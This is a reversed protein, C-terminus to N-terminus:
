LKIKFKYKDLWYALVLGKWLLSGYNGKGDKHKVLLKKLYASDLIKEETISDFTSYAFDFLGDKLWQRYPVGFGKKKGDLIQDPIIGRLAKRLLYKKQGFRVKQSSPLGLMYQTLDNDLFPVRAELSCCMTAKDVKELYKHKLLIDVDAYLMKQVMDLHGYEENFRKYTTFPDHKEICNRYEEDLIAFPSDYPVDETLYLAMKKADNKQNLVYSIRKMRLAWLENPIFRHSVTSVVKWFRQWDLVNYRRYGGFFEDGGDGQLIVKKDKSCQEALLYLPINATDSFPEDYQFVLKSFIDTIDDSRVKLEHHNTGFKKAIMAANELESNGGINFDYDVTYTDLRDMHRSGFAVISSSDIGGSLLVGIPVDSVLQKKVASELLERVKSVATKENQINDSVKPLSWYKKTSAIRGTSLDFELISASDLKNVNKVMTNNSITNGYWLYEALGQQNIELSDLWHYLVKAESAFAFYQDDDYYYLPKVGFRDRILYLKNTSKKLIATAFIGNWEQVVAKNKKVFTELMVETDSTTKTDISYKKKLENYNYIEGNYTCLYDENRSLFPQNSRQDLDIISLRYHILLSNKFRTNDTFDPGRQSMLRSSEHFASFISARPESKSVIGAIGCM